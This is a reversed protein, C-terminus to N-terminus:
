GGRGVATEKRLDVEYWGSKEEERGLFCSPTKPLRVWACTLWCGTKREKAKAEEGQSSILGFRM